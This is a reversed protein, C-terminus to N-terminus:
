WEHKDRLNGICAPIEHAPFVGEHLSDISTQVALGRGRAQSLNPKHVYPIDKSSEFQTYVPDYIHHESYGWFRVGIELMIFTSFVLYGSYLIRKSYKGSMLRSEEHPHRELEHFVRMYQCGAHYVHTTLCSHGAELFFSSFPLHFTQPLLDFAGM